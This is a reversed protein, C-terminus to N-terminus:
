RRVISLIEGGIMLIVTIVLGIISSFYFAHVLDYTGQELANKAIFKDSLHSTMEPAALYCVFFLVFATAFMLVMNRMSRPDMILKRITFGVWALTSLGM